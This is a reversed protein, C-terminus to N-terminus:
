YTLFYAYPYDGASAQMCYGGRVPSVPMAGSYGAGKNVCDVSTGNVSFTRPSVFNGCVLGAVTGVVENCTAGTGLM